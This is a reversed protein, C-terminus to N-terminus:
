ALGGLVCNFAALLGLNSFRVAGGTYRGCCAGDPTCVFAALGILRSARRAGATDRGGCDTFTGNAVGDKCFM